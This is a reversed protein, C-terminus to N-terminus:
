KLVVARKEKMAWTFRAPRDEKCSKHHSHTSSLIKCGGHIFREKILNHIEKVEKRLGLGGHGICKYNLLLIPFFFWLAAVIVMYLLWITSM